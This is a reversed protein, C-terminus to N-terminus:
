RRVSLHHRRRDGGQGEPVVPRERLFTWDERFVANPSCLAAVGRGRSGARRAAGLTGGRWHQRSHRRGTRPRPLRAPAAVGRGARRCVGALVFGLVARPKTRAFPTQRSPSRPREPARPYYRMPVIDLQLRRIKPADRRMKESEDCRKMVCRRRIKSTDEVHM